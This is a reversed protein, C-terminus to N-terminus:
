QIKRGMVEALSMQRYKPKNDSKKNNCERHALQVNGWEHWGGKALPLIHDITAAKFNNYSLRLDVKKGCIGCIGKDRKHLKKVTIDHIYVQRIKKKRKKKEIKNMEKRAKDKCNFSCYARSKDGYKPIFYRGCVKCEYVTNKNTKKKALRKRKDSLKWCNTSCFKGFSINTTFLQGCETCFFFYVSCYKQKLSNGNKYAPHNRSDFSRWEFACKRSCFRGSDAGHNIRTRRIRDIEFQKGCWECIRWETEKKIAKLKCKNSCYIQSPCESLFKKGCIPCPTKEALQKCYKTCYEKKGQEPIPIKCYKCCRVM